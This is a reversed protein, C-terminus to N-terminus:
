YKNITFQKQEKCLKSYEAHSGIWKIYLIVKSEIFQYKCIIRYQNGAIDFVVRNSGNGLLDSTAFLSQIDGPINWDAMKLLTLWTGFAIKSGANQLVFEEISRKKILRVKM